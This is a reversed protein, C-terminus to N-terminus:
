TKVNCLIHAAEKIHRQTLHTGVSSLLRYSRLMLNSENIMIVSAAPQESVEPCM